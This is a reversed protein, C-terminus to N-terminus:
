KKKKKGIAKDPVANDTMLKQGAKFTSKAKSVSNIMQVVAGRLKQVTYKAQTDDIIKGKTNFGYHKDILLEAEYKHSIAAQYYSNYDYYLVRMDIWAKNGRDQLIKYNQLLKDLGKSLPKVDDKHRAFLQKLVKYDHEIITTTYMGSEEGLATPDQIPAAAATSQPLIMGGILVLTTLLLFFRTTKNKITNVPM